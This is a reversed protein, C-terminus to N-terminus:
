VNLEKEMIFMSDPAYAEMQRHVDTFDEALIEITHSTNDDEYSYQVTYKNM